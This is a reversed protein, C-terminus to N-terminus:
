DVQEDCLMSLLINEPHAFYSNRRFTPDTVDLLEPPLYRSWKILNHFHIAGFSCKWDIKIGYVTPAYVNIIYTVLTKLNPYSEEKEFEEPTISTYLKLIRAATTFWRSTVAPGIRAR